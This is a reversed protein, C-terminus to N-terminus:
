RGREARQGQELRVALEDVRGASDDLEAVQELTREFRPLVQQEGNFVTLHRKLHRVQRDVRDHHRAGVLKVQARKSLVGLVVRKTSADHPDAHPIEEVHVPLSLDVVALDGGLNGFCTAGWVVYTAASHDTRVRSRFGSADRPVESLSTPVMTAESAGSSFASRSTPRCRDRARKSASWAFIRAPAM